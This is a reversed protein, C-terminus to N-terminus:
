KTFCNRNMQLYVYQILDILRKKLPYQDVPNFSHYSTDCYRLLNFVRFTFSYTIYVIERCFSKGFNTASTILIPLKLADKLENDIREDSKSIKFIESKM